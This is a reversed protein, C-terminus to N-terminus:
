LKFLRAANDSRLLAKDRESIRENIALLQVDKFKLMGGPDDHPYDTAFLFRDAGIFDMADPLESEETEITWYFNTRFYESPLRKNKAAAEEPPVLQPFFSTRARRTVPNPGEDDEYSAALRQHAADLKQCLPKIDKTGGEAHIFQLKPFEDLLGTTILAVQNMQKDSPVFVDLGDRQYNLLNVLRHGHQVAHLFIPVDLEEARQFFPWIERHGALPTGYPHEWVPYVFDLVVSRFGTEMAWEMEAIAGSLDQLAVLAVGFVQNPYAEMINLRALNYSHAIQTALNPEILYSWWGTFQPLMLHADIGQSTYFEMRAEMDSNGAYHSGSGPPKNPTTGPVYPLGPASIGVLIGEENYQLVPRDPHDVHDFADRPMFHTDCDIIM